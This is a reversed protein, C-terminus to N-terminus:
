MKMLASLKGLLYLKLLTPNISRLQRLGKELEKFPDDSDETANEQDKKSIKPNRFRNVITRKTVKDRSSVLIQLCSSNFLNFLDKGEELQQIM